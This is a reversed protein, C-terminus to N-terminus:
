GAKGTGAEGGDREREREQELHNLTEEEEEDEMCGGAPNTHISSNLAVYATPM